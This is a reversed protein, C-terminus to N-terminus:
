ALKGTECVGHASVETHHLIKGHNQMGVSFSFDLFDLVQHSVELGIGLTHLLLLEPVKLEVLVRLSEISILEVGSFEQHARSSVSGGVSEVNLLVHAVDVALDLTFHESLGSELGPADEVGISIGLGGLLELRGHVFAQLSTAIFAGVGVHTLDFWAHLEIRPLLLEDLLQVVAHLHHHHNQSSGFSSAGQVVVELLEQKFLVGNRRLNDEVTCNGFTFIQSRDHRLDQNLHVGFNTSYRPSNVVQRKHGGRSHDHAHIDEVRSSKALFGDESESGGHVLGGCSVPGSACRLIFNTLFSRVVQLVTHLVGHFSELFVITSIGSTDYEITVTDTFALNLSDTNRLYVLEFSSDLRGTNFGLEHVDVCALTYVSSDESTSDAAESVRSSASDDVGCDYVFVGVLEVKNGNRGLLAHRGGGLEGDQIVLDHLARVLNLQESIFEAVGVVIDRSRDLFRRADAIGVSQCREDTLSSTFSTSRGFDVRAELLLVGAEVEDSSLRM